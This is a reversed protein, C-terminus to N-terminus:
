STIAPATPAATFLRVGFIMGTSADDHPKFRVLVSRKGATLGAPIPYDEDFFAGPHPASRHVVTVAKQGDILIDFGCRDDGWYTAQLTLPGVPNGDKVTKMHFEMFGGERADRGNRGRYTGPWSVDSQLDHDREAQMEGLYMVDVSRAALDKQRAQEAKFAAEETVWEADTFRKFYVASRREYQSYFPVFTLEGPRGIGSTIYTAKDIAVPKLGAAIDAGVLAPEAANYPQDAPGLDAALVMPGRLVAVVHEDDRTAEVRLDLPLDLEVRDGAAWVRDIVAYGNRRAVSAPKGNIKFAASSAWGPVRLAIKARIPRKLKSLSLTATGDFPYKTDLRLDAGGRMWTVTSPIYLNVFLTPSAAAPGEWYISDGHKAHSEMGTGHCCTFTNEADSWERAAGTFLPTMYTFMGTKPNQQAMVHNLHAREYYDFYSADPRWAYLHRTLKLMNYSACHECTAETIHKSITDPEFFYERDGNGGIVFSHHGTVREWFFTAADRHRTNGGVEYLRALGILKPINTNAHHNALIDKQDSLPDLVKKHYLRESLALWRKDGTRAYLEAFSENIGGHECDLVKQVQDDSLAAFVHDIYGGLHAGVLVAKDNGCWTQVDFLGTYLKHWNYFPVWCGNLDFGASRIDGAMIEPFIEKGDVTTGDKRHRLFGAVYGDGQAGQILTLEDVIYAAKDALAPNGTQAHMLAIASLYHGLSHGAITDQEWGGYAEAKPKLGAGKRFNHLFRDPDLSLLYTENVTVATLHASPLLRVQSLPIPQATDPLSATDGSWARVPAAILALGAAGSLLTRRNLSSQSNLSSKSM